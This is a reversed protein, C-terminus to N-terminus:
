VLPGIKILLGAFDPGAKRAVGPRNYEAICGFGVLLMCLSCDIGDSSGLIIVNYERDTNCAGVCKGRFVRLNIFIIDLRITDGLFSPIQLLCQTSQM